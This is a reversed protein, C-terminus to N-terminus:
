HFIRNANETFVSCTRGEAPWYLSESTVRSGPIETRYFNKVFNEFLRAMQPSDRTVDQFLGIEMIRM